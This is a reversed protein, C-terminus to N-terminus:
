GLLQIPQLPVRAALSTGVSPGPELTLDPSVKWDDNIFASYQAINLQGIGGIGFGGGGLVNASVSAATGLLFDAFPQGFNVGTPTIEGSSFGDFSTSASGQPVWRNRIDLSRM